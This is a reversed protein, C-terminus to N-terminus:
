ERVSGQHWGHKLRVLEKNWIMNSKAARRIIDIDGNGDIISLLAASDYDRVEMAGTCFRRVADPENNCRQLLLSYFDINLGDTVEMRNDFMRDSIMDSVLGRLSAKEGILSPPFGDVDKVLRVPISGLICDSYILRSDTFVRAAGNMMSLVDKLPISEALIRKSTLDTEGATDGLKRSTKRKLISVVAQKELGTPFDCNIALTFRSLLGIKKKCYLSEHINLYGSLRYVAVDGFRKQYEELFDIGGYATIDFVAIIARIRRSDIKDVLKVNLGHFLPALKATCIICATFGCRYLESYLDFASIMQDLSCSDDVYVGVDFSDSMISDLLRNYSIHEFEELMRINSQNRPFSTRLPTNGAIAYELPVETVRSFSSAVTDFLRQGADTNILVLSVGLDDYEAKDFKQIGWFDGITVDGIRSSCKYPCSFCCPDMNLHTTLLHAFFPDETAIRIYETGDEFKMQLSPRWGWPRKNKFLISKVTKEPFYAQLYREFVSRSGNGHCVLDITRLNEYGRGLFAYLSAVQCPCGVFLVTIGGRLLEEIRKHIGTLNSQFYKSYRFASLEEESSCFDHIVNFSSDFRAACVVGGDYIIRDALVTFAGGSSSELRVNDTAQVAYCGTPIHKIVPNLIHCHRVCKMCSMCRSIDIRSRFFGKTEAISIASKPCVLACVGCGTCADTPLIPLIHELNDSM